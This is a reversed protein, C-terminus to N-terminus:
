RYVQAGAAYIGIASLRQDASRDGKETVNHRTRFELHIGTFPGLTTTTAHVERIEERCGRASHVKSSRCAQTM